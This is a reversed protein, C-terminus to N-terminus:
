TASGIKGPSGVYLMKTSTPPLPRKNHKTQGWADALIHYGTCSVVSSGFEEENKELM